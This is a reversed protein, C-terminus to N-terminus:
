YNQVKIVTDPIDYFNDDADRVVIARLKLYDSRKLQKWYDKISQSFEPGIMDESYVVRGDKMVDVACSVFYFHVDENPGSREPAHLTISDLHLYVNAREPLVGNRGIRPLPITNSVNLVMSDVVVGSSKRMMYLVGYRVGKKARVFYICDKNGAVEFTSKVVDFDSGAVSFDHCEGTPLIRCKNYYTSYITGSQDAPAVLEFSSSRQAQSKWAFLLTISLLAKKM